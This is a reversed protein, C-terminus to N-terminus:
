DMSHAFFNFSESFGGGGGRLFFKDWYFMGIGTLRDCCLM